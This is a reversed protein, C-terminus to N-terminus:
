DVSYLSRIDHALYKTVHEFEMLQGQCVEVLGTLLSIDENQEGIDDRHVLHLRAQFDSRPEVQSVSCALSLSCTLEM